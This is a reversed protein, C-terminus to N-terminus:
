LRGVPIPADAVIGGDEVPELLKSIGCPFTAAVLRGALPNAIGSEIGGACAVAASAAPSALLAVLANGNVGFVAVVDPILNGEDPGEDVGAVATEVPAEAGDNEVALAARIGRELSAIDLPALWPYAGPLM